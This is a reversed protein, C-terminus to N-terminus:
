NTVDIFFLNQCSNELNNEWFYSPMGGKVINKASSLIFIAWMESTLM